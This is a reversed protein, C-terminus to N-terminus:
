YHVSRGDSLVSGSHTVSADVSHITTDVVQFEHDYETDPMRHDSRSPVGCGAACGFSFVGMSAFYLGFVLWSWQGDTYAQSATWGGLAVYLLRQITWPQRVREVASDILSM